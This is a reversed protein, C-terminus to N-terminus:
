CVNVMKDITVKSKVVKKFRINLKLKQSIIAAILDKPNHLKIIDLDKVSRVLTIGGLLNAFIRMTPVILM